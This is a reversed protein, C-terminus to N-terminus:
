SINVENCALCVSGCFVPVESHQKTFALCKLDPPQRRASRIADNAWSPIGAGVM